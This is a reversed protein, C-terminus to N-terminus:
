KLGYQFKLKEVTIAIGERDKIQCSHGRMDIRLDIYKCRTNSSWNWESAMAQQLVEIVRKTDDWKQPDPPKIIQPVSVPKQKFEELEAKTKKM